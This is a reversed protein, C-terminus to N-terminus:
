GNVWRRLCVRSLVGFGGAELRGCVCGLVVQLDLSRVAPSAKPVSRVLQDKGDCRNRLCSLRVCSPDCSCSWLSTYSTPLVEGIRSEAIQGAHM